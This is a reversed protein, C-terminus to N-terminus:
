VEAGECEEDFWRKLTKEKSANPLQEEDFVHCLPVCVASLKRRGFAVKRARVAMPFRELVADYIEAWGQQSGQFLHALAAQGPAIALFGPFDKDFAQTGWRKGKDKKVRGETDLEEDYFTCNVLKLGYQGLRENIRKGADPDRLPEIAHDLADGIWTALAVREDGGRAQVQAGLLHDLCDAHQPREQAIERMREPRCMDAWHLVDEYDPLGDPTDHDHILVDACALLTGFQDCARGDHGAQRLAEHYKAKTAALRAWGDVMRRLLKRGITPLNYAELSPEGAWDAPFPMLEGIALRSKDQAPMSPINISSFLFSSRISFEHANHDQGGRHGKDGTFSLRMLEIVDNVKRNDASAEIEDVLVPVTAQGLSQRIAAGTANATRFCGRGLLQHLAKGEGNLHSKGTGRGGTLWINPRVPLAGGVLASGLWGLLLRPDLLSRRWNWTRFLGPLGDRGIQGSILLAAAEPGVPDPWPRPIPDDGAYVFDGLVGCSAWNWRRLEGELTHDSHLIKDGCHLALGGADHRHAGRGRKRDASSFRGRRVCEGILAATAEAQDWGIIESARDKTPKSWKPFQEELWEEDGFLAVMGNKGHRNNAELGVLQKNRDLYFCTQKGDETSRIGLPVIPCSKWDIPLKRQKGKEPTADGEQAMTPADKPNDLADKISAVGDTM